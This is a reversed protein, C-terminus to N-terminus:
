PEIAAELIAVAMANLPTPIGHRAGLRVIVGNRADLELPRNALRDALLSNVSDPASRRMREVVEDPLTDALRAGEARGVLAAEAAIARMLAAAKENQVVRAPKLTLSHVVGASNLALKRWAATLWDDTTAPALATGAFLAVFARGVEGAPVTIDGDRRQRIQGAGSREAPIDIIAPLTRESPVLGAFRTLHEVGNQVVVVNTRPGLLREIWRAAGTTDYTKTTTIIWDVPSGLAPDALIRPACDLTRGDPVEVRLRAFPTRVCLTVDNAPVQTLWAAITGGIAGPGIVAISPM